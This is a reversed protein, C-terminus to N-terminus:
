KKQSKGESKGKPREDSPPQEHRREGSREKGKAADESWQANSNEEAQDSRHESASEGAANEHKPKDDAFSPAPGVLAFAAIAIAFISARSVM